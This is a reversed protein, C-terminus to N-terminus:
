CKMLGPALIFSHLDQLLKGVICHHLVPEIVCPVIVPHKGHLAQVNSSTLYVKAKQSVGVVKKSKLKICKQKQKKYNNQM